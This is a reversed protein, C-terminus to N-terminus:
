PSTATRALAARAKRRVGSQFFPAWGLLLGPLGLAQKSWAYFDFVDHHRQILGNTVTMNATVQNRVPRGTQSFTYRAIWDTVVHDGQAPRVEFEVELDTARGLLMTWMARVQEADLAGFAPDQFRADPAYLANMQEADRRAFAEYFRTAVAGPDSPNSAM